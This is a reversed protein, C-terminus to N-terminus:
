QLINMLSKRKRLRRSQLSAKSDNTSSADNFHDPCPPLEFTPARENAGRAVLKTSPKEPSQSRNPVPPMEAPSLQFSATRSFRSNRRLKTTQPSAFSSNLPATQPTSPTAPTPPMMGARSNPRLDWKKTSPTIAIKALSLKQSISRLRKHPASKIIPSASTTSATEFPDSSLFSHTAPSQPTLPDFPVNPSFTSARYLSSIRPPRTAAASLPRTKELAAFSSSRNSANTFSSSSSSSSDIPVLLSDSRSSSAHGTSPRRPETSVALSSSRSTSTSVMLSMRSAQDAKQLHGIAAVPLQAVSASRQASERTPSIGTALQIMKPRGASVYSVRIAKMDFTKPTDLLSASMKRIMFNAQQVEHISVHDDYEVESDSSNGETPSLDEESSLYRDQLSLPDKSDLQTSTHVVATDIRLTEVADHYMDPSTPSSEPRAATPKEFAWQQLQTSVTVDAMTSLLPSHCSATDLSVLSPSTQYTDHHSALTCKFGFAHLPLAGITLSTHLCVGRPTLRRRRVRRCDSLASLTAATGPVAPYHIYPNSPPTFILTLTRL